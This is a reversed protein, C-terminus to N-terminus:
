EVTIKIGYAFTNLLRVIERRLQTPSHEQQVISDFINQSLKNYSVVHYTQIWTWFNIFRRDSVELAQYCYPCYVEPEIQPLFKYPDQQDHEGLHLDISFGVFSYYTSM